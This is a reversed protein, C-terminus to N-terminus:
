RSKDTPKQSDEAEGQLAVDDLLTAPRDRNVTTLISQTVSILM